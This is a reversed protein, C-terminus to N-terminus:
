LSGIHIVPARGGDAAALAVAHVRALVCSGVQRRRQAVHVGWVQTRREKLALASPTARNGGDLALSGSSGRECIGRM